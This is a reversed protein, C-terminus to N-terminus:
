TIYVAYGVGVAPTLPDRTPKITFLVFQAGKRGWVALHRRGEGVGSAVVEAFSEDREDGLYDPDGWHKRALELSAAFAKDLGAEAAPIDDPGLDYASWGSNPCQPFVLSDHAIMASGRRTTFGWSTMTDPIPTGPDRPWPRWGTAASVRQVLAAVVAYGSEDTDPGAVQTWDAVEALDAMARDDEDLPRDQTKM